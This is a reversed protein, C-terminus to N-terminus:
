GYILYAMTLKITQCNKRFVEISKSVKKFVQTSESYESLGQTSKTIVQTNNKLM